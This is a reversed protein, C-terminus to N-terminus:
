LLLFLPSCTSKPTASDRKVGKTLPEPSGSPLFLDVCSLLPVVWPNASLPCFFQSLPSQGGSQWGWKTPESRLFVCFHIGSVTIDRCFFELFLGSGACILSFALLDFAVLLALKTPTDMRGGDAAGLVVWASSLLRSQRSRGVMEVVM